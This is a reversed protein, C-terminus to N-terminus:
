GFSHGLIWQISLQTTGLAPRSLHSFDGGGWGPNSEPGDVVFWTDTYMLPGWCRDIKMIPSLFAVYLIVKIHNQGHM